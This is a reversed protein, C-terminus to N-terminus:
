LRIFKEILKREKFEIQIIYSGVNLTSVPIREVFSNSHYISKGDQNYIRTGVFEEKSLECDIELTLYETVPNPYIRLQVGENQHNGHSPPQDCVITSGIEIYGKPELAKCRFGKFDRAYRTCRFVNNDRIGTNQTIPGLEDIPSIYEWVINEQQDIEFFRGGDGACILTNGNPLRQAGSLIDAYFDTPNPATYTWDFDAPGYAGGNYSYFGNNDVPTEVTNVTSYKNGQSAGVRNNFLLIKGADVLSNPIWHTDHQDFFKQDFSTGQDYTQPNGWRYLLDGGKGYVGEVSGSAEDTTTSHDIIWLESFGRVSMIIQDFEENYDVGNMHLWDANNLDKYNVDIREPHESIVGYNPKTPDVDQIIHDWARWHWVVTTAGTIINPKVELIQESFIIARTTSGGAAIVEAKKIADRVILLINGNPLLEMDHHHLGYNQNPAYEWIVNGNWDIMEVNGDEGSGKPPRGLRLLTGDEMLYCANGPVYRSIWSHVKEGCNDILFTEKSNEPTFLTYGDFAEPKNIFVGVTQQASSEFFLSSSLIFLLLILLTRILPM